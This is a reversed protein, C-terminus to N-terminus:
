NFFTQQHKDIIFHNSLVSNLIYPECQEHIMRCIHVGFDFLGKAKSSVDIYHGCFQFHNWM